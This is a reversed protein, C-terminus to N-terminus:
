HVGCMVRSIGFKAGKQTSCGLRKPLRHKKLSSWIVRFHLFVLSEGMLPSWWMVRFHLFVLSEGMLPSWWMVRFHLFVLSEGM